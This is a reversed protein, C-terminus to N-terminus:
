ITKSRPWEKLERFLASRKTLHACPYPISTIWGMIADLHQEPFIEMIDITIILKNVL